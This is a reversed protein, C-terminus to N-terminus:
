ERIQGDGDILYKVTTLASAGMPGRAHLKQTSIGLEAGFGFEGGDTFHTSANVYVCAADTRSQFIRAADRSQTVICESHGTGHENIFDIAEDISKVAHVACVLDLFETDYDAPSASVVRCAEHCDRIIPLCEEDARMEVKGDFAKVLQPLFDKLRNKHVLICEIANCVGPRSMKANKAISKAMQINASEDVYLHCVGSGTEICPVLANDVVTKILTKGGRPLVVDILGKAKLIMDADSHDGAKSPCLSVVDEAGSIVSSRLGERIADVIARNSNYAGSSGRLLVANGSKLCLAFADLTVNPRSEYIIAAVGLPVAVRRITIGNNATWSVGEGIPDKQMIISSVSSTMKDIKKEDLLLRDLLAESTGRERAAAADANNANIIDLTHEKISQGALLLADNREKGTTLALRAAARRLSACTDIFDKKEM